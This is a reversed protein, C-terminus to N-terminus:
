ADYQETLEDFKSQQAEIRADIEGSTTEVVCGGPGISPDAEIEIQRVGQVTLLEPKYRELFECDDPSVLIRVHERDVAEEVAARAVGCVVEDNVSLEEHVIRKAIKVALRLIEPELAKLQRDRLGVLVDSMVRFHELFPALQQLIIEQGAKEGKQHGKLYAQKEIEASRASAEEVIRRAERNAGEIRREAYQRARETMDPISMTCVGGTPKGRLDVCSADTKLFQKGPRKDGYNM